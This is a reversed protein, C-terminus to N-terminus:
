KKPGIRGHPGYNQRMYEKLEKLVPNPDLSIMRTPTNGTYRKMQRLGFIAEEWCRHVKEEDTLNMKDRFELRISNYIKQRNSSPYVKANRLIARYIALRDARNM